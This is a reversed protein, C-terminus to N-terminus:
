SYRQTREYITGLNNLAEEYNRAIDIAKKLHRKETEVDGKADVAKKFEDQAKRPIKLGVLTVRKQQEIDYAALQRLDFNVTVENITYATQITGDVEIVPGVSGLRTPLTFSHGDKVVTLEYEGGPLDAHFYDGNRDTKAEFHQGVAVRVLQVIIGPLPKGEQ